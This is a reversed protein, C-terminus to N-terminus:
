EHYRDHLKASAGRAEDIGEFILLAAIGGLLGTILLSMVM